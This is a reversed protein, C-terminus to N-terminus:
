SNCFEGSGPSGRRWSARMQRLIDDAREADFIPLRKAMIDGVEGIERAYRDLTGKDLQDFPKRERAEIGALIALTLARVEASPTCSPADFFFDGRMEKPWAMEEFARGCYFLAENATEFPVSEVYSLIDM